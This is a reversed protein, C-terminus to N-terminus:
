KRGNRRFFDKIPGIVDDAKSYSIYEIGALNGPSKGGRKRILLVKKSLGYLLGLEFMVNANWDSINVIAYPSEQIVKCIKCMIDINSIIEDAKWITFGMKTVTPLIGYQYVDNYEDSFPMAIFIQKSKENIIESCRQGTKFCKNIIQGKELLASQKELSSALNMILDNRISGKVSILAEHFVRQLTPKFNLGYLVDNMIEMDDKVEKLLDEFGQKIDSLTQQSCTLEGTGISGECTMEGLGALGSYIHHYDGDKMLDILPKIAPRGFKGLTIAAHISVETGTSSNSAHRMVNILPEIARRDKIEGLVAIAHMVVRFEDTLLYILIDTRKPNDMNRLKEIISTKEEVEACNLRDYLKDIGEDSNLIISMGVKGLM